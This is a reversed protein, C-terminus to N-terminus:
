FLSQETVGAYMARPKCISIIFSNPLYFLLCHENFMDNRQIRILGLFQHLNVFSDLPISNKKQWLFEIKRIGM